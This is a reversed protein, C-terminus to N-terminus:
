TKQNRILYLYPAHSQKSRFMLSIVNELDDKGDDSMEDDIVMLRTRRNKEKTQGRQVHMFDTSDDDSSGGFSIDTAQPQAKTAEQAGPNGIKAM